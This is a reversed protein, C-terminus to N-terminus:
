NERTTFQSLDIHHKRIKYHIARPSIGLLEAAEKQVGGTLELARYITKRELNELNLEEPEPRASRRGRELLLDAPQIRDEPCVLTAREVANELERINGPWAHKQLLNETEAALRLEPRNLERSFRRLFFHALPLIDARRERLPPLHIPVVNLRYYLDERFSGQAIMEELNRNTAAILRVNVTITQVGGLREFEHLQIVRLVKAQTSLSMDGIEDLFLSGGNAQEFRGTRRKYAGTFAGKEHGFLESELLNEHLAACNVAVFGQRRRASNFHLAAAVLEKGTGTEGRILISSNSDAVKEVLALVDRMPKSEAIINGFQYIYPQTHRLYDVADPLHKGRLVTRMTQVLNAPRIPQYVITQRAIIEPYDSLDSDSRALLMMESDSEALQRLADKQGGIQSEDVIVAHYLRRATKELAGAPDDAFDLAFEAPDLAQKIEGTQATVALIQWM